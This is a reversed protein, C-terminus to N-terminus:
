SMRQTELMLVESDVEVPEHAALHRYRRQVRKFEGSIFLHQPEVSAGPTAFRVGSDFTLGTNYRPNNSALSVPNFWTADTQGDVAYGVDISYLGSVSDFLPRWTPIRKYQAPSDFHSYATRLEFQMQDGLNDYDSQEGYYLAAVRNSGQLFVDDQAFRAFTRGIYVGLDKGEYVGLVLNIVFCETNQPQGNPSYFAYLRNNWKELVISDKDTIDLYEELFPKALNVSETGNFQHIGEGDAHWIYNEDYVLSEQTFTGRQDTAEDISWTANSDGFVVFKNKRAFAYLVGNLKALATIRHASKPAGMVLFDTSTFETYEGFNTYNLQTGEALDNYFMLGKHEICLDATFTADTVESATGTALDYKWPKSGFAFYVADQAMDFRYNTYASSFGTQVTATAGTVEDVGYLTTGAVMLTKKLGNFRYARYLGKVANAPAVSLKTNMSWTAAVWTTGGDMTLADASATTSSVEYDTVDENQGRVVVWVVDGSTVGPAAMFYCPVYAYTTTIDSPRISSRALLAGPRGASNSYLEVLLVGISSGTSRVRIEAMTMAGTAGVTLKQAIARSGGVTQDDAGTTATVSGQVAEGVPVSFRTAGKRTRYRGKKVMRADTAYVLTDPKVDDNDTYTDVGGKYSLQKTQAKQTSTPPIYTRYGHRSRLRM